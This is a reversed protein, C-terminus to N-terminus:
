RVNKDWLHWFNKIVVESHVDEKKKKKERFLHCIKYALDYALCTTGAVVRSGYCFIVM